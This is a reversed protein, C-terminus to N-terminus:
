RTLGREVAKKALLGAALMVRRIRPTRAALHDRRHRGRRPRADYDARRASEETRLSAKRSARRAAPQSNTLRGGERHGKLECAIRRGSRAPSARSSPASTSSWRTPTVPEPSSARACCARSRATASRGARGNAPPRHCRLYDLTETTSRSSAAHDRRIGAGHQRDHRPRRAAADVLRRRLVRRVQRRRGEQAADAHRAAGPRHRDRRRPLQGTAQLRDSRAHLMSIPQGLM